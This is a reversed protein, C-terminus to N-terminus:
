QLTLERKQKAHISRLSIAIRAHLERFTSHSRDSNRAVIMTEEVHTSMMGEGSEGDGIGDEWGEEAGIERDVFVDVIGRGCEVGWRM